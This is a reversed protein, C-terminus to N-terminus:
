TLVYKVWPCKTSSVVQKRIRRPSLCRQSSSRPRRPRPLFLHTRRRPRSTSRTRLEVFGLWSLRNIVANSQRVGVDTSWVTPWPPIFATTLIMPELDSTQINYCDEIKHSTYNQNNIPIPYCQSTLETPLAESELGSPRSNLDRVPWSKTKWDISWEHKTLLIKYIIGYLVTDSDFRRSEPILFFSVQTKRKITHKRKVSATESRRTEEYSSYELFEETTTSENWRDDNM